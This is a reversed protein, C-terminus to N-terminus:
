SFVLSQVLSLRNNDSNNKFNILFVLTIYKAHSPVFSGVPFCSILYSALWFMSKQVRIVSCVKHLIYESRSKPELKGGKQRWFFFFSGLYFLLSLDADKNLVKWLLSVIPEFYNQLAVQFQNEFISLRWIWFFLFGSLIVTLHISIWLIM